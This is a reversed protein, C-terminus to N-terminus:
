ILISCCVIVSVVPHFKFHFNCRLIHTLKHHIYDFSYYTFFRKNFSLLRLCLFPSCATLLVCNILVRWNFPMILGESPPNNQHSVGVWLLWHRGCVCSPPLLTVSAILSSCLHGVQNSLYIMVLSIPFPPIGVYHPFGEVRSGISRYGQTPLFRVLWPYIYLQKNTRSGSKLARSDIFSGCNTWFVDLNLPVSYLSAVPKIATQFTWPFCAFNLIM